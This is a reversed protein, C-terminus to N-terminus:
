AWFIGDTSLVQASPKLLSASYNTRWADRGAECSRALITESQRIDVRLDIGHERRNRCAKRRVACHNFAAMVFSQGNISSLTIAPATAKHAHSQSIRLNSSAFKLSPM